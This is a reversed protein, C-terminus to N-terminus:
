KKRRGSLVLTDAIIIRPGSDRGGLVLTQTGVVRPGSDRGALVITPANITRPGLLSSAAAAKPPIPGALGSKPPPIQARGVGSGLTALAALATFGIAAVPRRARRPDIM